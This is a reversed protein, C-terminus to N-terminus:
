FYSCDRKIHFNCISKIEKGREREGRRERGRGKRKRKIM